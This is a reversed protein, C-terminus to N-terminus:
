SGVGTGSFPSPSTGGPESPIAARIARSGPYSRALRHATTPRRPTSLLRNQNQSPLTSANRKGLPASLAATGCSGASSGFPVRSPRAHRLRRQPNSRATNSGMLAPATHSQSRELGPHEVLRATEVHRVRGEPADARAPMSPIAIFRDASGWAGEQRADGTGRGPLLDRRLSTLSMREPLSKLVQCVRVHHHMLPGSSMDCWKHARRAPRRDPIKVERYPARFQSPLQYGGGVRIAARLKQARPLADSLSSGLVARRRHPQSEVGRRGYGPASIWAFVWPYVAICWARPM